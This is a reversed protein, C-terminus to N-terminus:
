ARAFGDIPLRTKKRPLTIIIFFTVIQFVSKFNREYLTIRHFGYIYYLIKLEWIISICLSKADQLGRTKKGFRVFQTVIIPVKHVFLLIIFFRSFLNSVRM